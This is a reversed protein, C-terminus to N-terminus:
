FCFLRNEFFFSILVLLSPFPPAALPSSRGLPLGPLPRLPRGFLSRVSLLNADEVSAAASSSLPRTKDSASSWRPPMPSPAYSPASLSPHSRRYLFAAGAVPQSHSLRAAETAMPPARSAQPLFFSPPSKVETANPHCQSPSPVPYGV